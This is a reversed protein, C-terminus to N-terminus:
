HRQDRPSAAAVAYLMPGAAVWRGYFGGLEQHLRWVAGKIDGSALRRIYEFPTYAPAHFSGVADVSYGTNSLLRTLAAGTFLFIHAHPALMGTWRRGLFRFHGSEMNPTLLMLRGEPALFRQLEKLMGGPDPLHEIVSDMVILDLSGPEIGSKGIPRDYFHIGPYFKRAGRSERERSKSGWSRLGVPPASSQAYIVM